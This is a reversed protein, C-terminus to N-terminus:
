AVDFSPEAGLRLAEAVCVFIIGTPITMGVPM